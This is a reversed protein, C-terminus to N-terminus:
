ALKLAAAAARAASEARAAAEERTAGTCIVHGYRDLSSRIEPIRFGHKLPGDRESEPFFFEVGPMKGVEELGDTGEITTGPEVHFYRVASGREFAADLEPKDGVAIQIVARVLDVGTSLPTLHTSIRDGGLRAGIEIIKPGDKTMKVEAHIGCEDLGLARVGATVAAVIEAKREPLFRSPQTHGSEVPYPGPFVCKDTVQVVRVTGRYCVGEVSMEPGELWEEVLLEGSPQYARAASWYAAFEGANTVRYIGRSGSSRIIKLAVPYGIQGAAATGEELSSAELFHPSPAGHSAFARRMLLKDTAHEAASMSLAPLGLRQAVAAVTRVPADTCMTVVGAIGESRAIATVAEADLIDVTYATDAAALGVARPNADLAVSRARLARTAEIAPIQLPGAGLILVSLPM